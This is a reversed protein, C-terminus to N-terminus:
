PRPFAPAAEPLPHRRSDPTLSPAGSAGPSPLPVPLPPAPTSRSSQTGLLFQRQEQARGGEHCRCVLLLPHDSRRTVKRQSERPARRIKKPCAQASPSPFSAVHRWRASQPCSFQTFHVSGHDIPRMRTHIFLFFRSVRDFQSNRASGCL